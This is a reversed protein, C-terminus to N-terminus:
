VKEKFNVGLVVEYCKILHDVGGMANHPEQEIPLGYAKAISNKSLLMEKPFSKGDKKNKKVYMAWYMSALDLWHYPWKLKEQTYVDILQTFFARDAAPNQCIFVANDREVGLNKLLQIIEEAVVNPEKGTLVKEWTYGNIELSVPDARKWVEEPQKVITQYSGKVDETTVDIVKIAVDIPSHRIPDLGTTETDLFIALM